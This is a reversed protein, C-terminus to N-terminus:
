RIAPGCGADPDVDLRGHEVHCPPVEDPVTKMLASSKNACVPPASQASTEVDDHHVRWVHRDAVHIVQCGLNDVVIRVAGEEATM